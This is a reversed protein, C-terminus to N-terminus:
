ERKLQVSTTAGKRSLNGAWAGAAGAAVSVVVPDEPGAEYFRLMLKAGDYDIQAIVGSGELGRGGNLDRWAGDTEGGRDVFQFRYLARGDAGALTWGGDMRGSRARAAAATERVARDYTKVDLKDYPTPGPAVNAGAEEESDTTQDPGSLNQLISDISTSSAPPRAPTPPAPPAPPAQLMSDISPPSAAPKAPAPSAPPAPPPAAPPTQVPDSGAVALASAFVALNM